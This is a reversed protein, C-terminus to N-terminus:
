KRKVHNIMFQVNENSNQVILKIKPYRNQWVRFVEDAFGQGITTVNKFDFVVEKFKELGSIVRRAQSRSIYTAGSKYLEIKVNTKSFEYEEGTYQQFIEQLEKTSNNSILFEVETGQINKCRDVFIDNLINDYILKKNSSKIILKDAVKSTFFIGEGSHAEPATTLKGKLLEQIVEYENALGRKKLIHNFIGIGKDVVCFYLDNNRDMWLNITKSQSHEIANNLIELFAYEFIHSINESVGAFIGSSQKIEQLIQDEMLSTNQIIRHVSVIRKKTKEVNKKTALIYHAKNAKGILVIKGERRLEQFYRNIYARSFETKTIIEAADVTGKETVINLILGKVDINKEKKM